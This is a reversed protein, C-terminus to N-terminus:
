GRVVLLCVQQHIGPAPLARRTSRPGQGAPEVWYRRKGGRVDELVGGNREIVTASAVNADDCTLLVREIALHRAELLALAAAATAIGRGRATPRVAYGIHGGEEFLFANLEHRLAVFGVLRGDQVVWRSTSPVLGEPVDEGFEDAMALFEAQRAIDPGVLTITGHSM